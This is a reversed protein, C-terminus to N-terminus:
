ATTRKDLHDFENTVEAIQSQDDSTLSIEEIEISDITLTKIPVKTKFELKTKESRRDVKVINRTSKGKKGNVKNVSSTVRKNSGRKSLGTSM